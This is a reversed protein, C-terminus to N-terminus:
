FFNKRFCIFHVNLITKISSLYYLSLLPTLNNIRSEVPNTAAAIHEFILPPPETNCTWAWDHNFISVGAVMSSHYQWNSSMPLPFNLPFWFLDIFVIDQHPAHTLQGDKIQLVLCSDPALVINLNNNIYPNISYVFYFYFLVIQHFRTLTNIM